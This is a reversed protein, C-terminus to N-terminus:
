KNVFEVGLYWTTADWEVENLQAVANPVGARYTVEKGKDSNWSQRQVGANISINDLLTYNGGVDIVMGSAKAFHELSRPHSLDVRQNLNMDANFDVKHRELNGYLTLKDTVAHTLQAGVWLGRWEADYKAQLPVTAPQPGTLLGGSGFM